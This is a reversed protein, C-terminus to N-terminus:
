REGKDHDAFFRDAAREALRYVEPLSRRSKEALRRCSEYEPTARLVRGNQSLLKIQAPGLATEVTESRRTLKFRETRYSRVGIASSERLVLGALNEERGCPAVVTLRTGPRNKKMQLPAFAVDLAGAQLLRESLAGLWEPNGDDIHTELVSVLDRETAEALHGVIGRLVNPRDELHRGGVGYGTAEITMAPIEGFTAIEAAIAAGTPTVLEKECRGDIVPVGKLVELTAPAPLPFNGHACRVTGRSLPLPACTVEPADLLQLGIAAGVVDVISDIAGVEHFHVKELAIGHVKAEAEGLRRFIRRALERTPPALRSAALMRDIDLWTRHHHQEDIEVQLRTGSIGQRQERGWNLRYGPVPLAALEKEIAAPDVGLDVLLALFMDGAIGGVPDLHLGKM